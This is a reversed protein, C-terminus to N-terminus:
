NVKIKIPKAAEAKKLDINLVGDKYSAKISTHDISTKIKLQKNFGGFSRENRLYNYKDDRDNKKEGAISLIGNEFTISVENPNVGPLLAEIHYENEKEHVNVLPYDTGRTYSDSYGNFLSDFSRRMEDLERFLDNVLM